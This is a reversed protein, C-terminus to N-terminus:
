FYDRNKMDVPDSSPYVWFDGHFCVVKYFVWWEGM